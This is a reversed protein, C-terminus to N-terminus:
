CKGFAFTSVVVDEEYHVDLGLVHPAELQSYMTSCFGGDFPEIGDRM